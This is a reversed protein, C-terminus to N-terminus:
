QQTIINLRMMYTLALNAFLIFLNLRIAEQLRRRRKEAALENMRDEQSGEGGMDTSDKRKAGETEPGLGLLARRQREKRAAIM